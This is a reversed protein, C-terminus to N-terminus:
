AQRATGSNAQERVKERMEDLMARSRRRQEAQRQLLAHIAPPTSRSGLAARYYAAAINECPVVASLLSADGAGLRAKLALWRRHATGIRTGKPHFDAGTLAATIRELEVAFTARLFSEEQLFERCGADKVHVALEYFGQEGDRLIAILNRLASYGEAM